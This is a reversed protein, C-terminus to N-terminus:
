VPRVPTETIMFHMLGGYQHHRFDGNRWKVLFFMNKNLFFVRPAESRRLYLPPTFCEPVYMIQM